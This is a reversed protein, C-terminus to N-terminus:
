FYSFTLRADPTSNEVSTILRREDARPQLMVEETLGVQIREGPISFGCLPPLGIDLV